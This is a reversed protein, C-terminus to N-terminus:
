CLAKFSPLFVIIFVVILGLGSMFALLCSLCWLFHLAWYSSLFVIIFVCPKSCFCACSGVLLCSFIVVMTFIPHHFTPQSSLFLNINQQPASQHCRCIKVIALIMKGHPSVHRMPKSSLWINHEKMNGFMGKNEFKKIPWHFLIIVFVFCKPHLGGM